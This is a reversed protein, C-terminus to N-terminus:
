SPTEERLALLAARCIKKCAAEETKENFPALAIMYSTFKDKTVYDEESNIKRVIQWSLHMNGCFNVPSWKCKDGDHYELICFWWGKESFIMEMVNSHDHSYDPESEGMVIEAVLRNLEDTNKTFIQDYQQTHRM